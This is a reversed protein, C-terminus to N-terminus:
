SPSLVAGVGTLWSVLGSAGRFGVYGDPRVALLEPGNATALRHVHVLPGAPFAVPLPTGGPLLLHVGPQATLERLRAPHGDITTM